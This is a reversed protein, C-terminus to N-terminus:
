NDDRVAILNEERHVHRIMRLFVVIGATAQISTTGASAEM